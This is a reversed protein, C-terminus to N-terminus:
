PSLRQLNAQHVTVIFDNTIWDTKTPNIGQWRGKTLKRLKWYFFNPCAFGGILGFSYASPNIFNIINNVSERVQPIPFKLTWFKIVIFKRNMLTLPQRLLYKLNKQLRILKVQRNSFWVPRPPKSQSKPKNLDELANEEEINLFM